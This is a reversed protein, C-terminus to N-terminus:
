LKLGGTSRIQFSRNKKSTAARPPLEDLVFWGYTADLAKREAITICEINSYNQLISQEVAGEVM